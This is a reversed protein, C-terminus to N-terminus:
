QTKFDELLVIETLQINGISNGDATTLTARGYNTESKILGIESIWETVKIDDFAPANIYEWEIKYCFYSKGKLTLNEYGVVKKNITSKILETPERYTWASNEQLPLKIELPPTNEFRIENDYESSKKFSNFIESKLIDMDNKILSSKLKTESPSTYAYNKLGDSDIFKYANSYLTQIGVVGGVITSIKNSFVKVNMTDNLITDNVIQKTIISELTDIEVIKDSTESEYKKTIGYRLYGWETGNDMPLNQIKVPTIEEKDECSILIALLIIVKFKIMRKM